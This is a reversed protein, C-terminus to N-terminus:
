VRLDNMFFVAMAAPAPSLMGQSDDQALWAGVVMFTGDPRDIAAPGYWGFQLENEAPYRQGSQNRSALNPM